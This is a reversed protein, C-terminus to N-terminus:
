LDIVEIASIKPNQVGHRFEINLVGDTVSVDVTKTLATFGGVEAFIDLNDFRLVSEVLVDFVRAGVSQAGSYIEAFYLKVRYTGNPVALSYQLEPLTSGDWRETRFLTDEVTGAIAATTSSTSGTNFGQDASWVQGLSDTYSGGGANIRYRATTGGGGSGNVTITVDDSNSLASDNATLRLVYTGAASFAATTDVANANGFTVTGPGSVKSWTTTVTGPPSPLGDDSVTGNLSATSPLTITQDAGANVSPRQNTSGSGGSKNISFLDTFVGDTRLNRMTLVSGNIDVLLSGNSTFNSFVMVPHTGTGAPLKGGHGAVVYVAGQNVDPSKVYAGDRAPDGDGDDLIDGNAQLTSFSPTVFNPSTGYGYVGNIFFSREYGHSHGTLVVDVGGAELIPLANERMEVMRGGSDAFSDSNHSGKSYPPHHFTAIIWDQNTGALDQQLWTLMASGRARSSQQSDLVIFHVNAYDFSYYAETGSPTGGAEGATPLVHGEFYPGTGLTASASVAEHNGFSPYLSTNRLINQYVAFHKTTFETDTGSEYAIDGLHLILDPRDGATAALMSNRVAAQTSSGDGSDGLSWFRVPTTSGVAPATVFYHETTGGGEVGGTTGVNYFYKTGAALGTIRVFHDKVASNSGPVASVGSATQNLNGSSTGYRVRSNNFPGSPDDTRWVITVSSPTVRQIYPQRVLAASAPQLLALFAVTTWWCLASWAKHNCSLQCSLRSAPIM